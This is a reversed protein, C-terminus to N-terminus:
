LIKERSLAQNIEESSLERAEGPSLKDDLLLGGIRLRKLELVETGVAHFMRKIQHFKGECIEVLATNKGIIKMDAPLFDDGGESIGARFKEVDNEALKRDVVAEYLKNVHSKPALLKHSFEGDDTIILLGETNRDLRGAPFLDKRRLEPPLLDLVTKERSDRSASVVGKPKNLMIYIYRKYLIPEDDLTIECNEPDFKDESRAVIKGDVKIRGQKILMKIEKRSAIEQSSLIKDIRLLGERISKLM